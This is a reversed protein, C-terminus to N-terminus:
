TRFVKAKQRLIGSTMDVVIIVVALSTPVELEMDASFFTLLVNEGLKLMVCQVPFFIFNFVYNIVFVM